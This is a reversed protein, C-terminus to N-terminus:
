VTRYEVADGLDRTCTFLRNLGYIFNVLCSILLMLRNQFGYGM